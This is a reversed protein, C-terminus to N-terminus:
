EEQLNFLDLAQQQSIKIKKSDALTYIFYESTANDFGLIIEEKKGEDNVTTFKKQKSPFDKINLVQPSVEKCKLYYIM